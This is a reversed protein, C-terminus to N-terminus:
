QRQFMFPYSIQVEGGKPAPFKMSKIVGSLCRSTKPDALTSSRERVDKVRGNTRVVWSFVVKGSLTPNETLRREYCAQMKGIYRDLTKSVDARSLSGGAVKGLAKLSSVKGRVKGSSARKALKGVDKGIPTSTSTKGRKGGGGIAMNVEDGKLSELAGSVDFGGDGGGPKQVADINSVVDKISSGSGPNPSTLMTLVNDAQERATENPRTRTSSRKELAKKVTEPLQVQQETPDDPAPPAVPKTPKPKEPIPKPAEPPTPKKLDTLKGEAFAEIQDPDPKVTLQVGAAQIAMVALMAVLHLAIALGLSAGYLTLNKRTFTSQASPPAMPPRFTRIRWAVEGMQLECQDGPKLEVKQSFDDIPQRRNGDHRREIWGTLAHSDALKKHVKVTGSKTGLTAKFPAERDRYRRRLGRLTYIAFARDNAHRVIEMVASSGYEDRTAGLQSSPKLIEELAFPAEFDADEDEDRPADWDLNAFYPDDPPALPNASPESSRRARGPDVAAPAPADPAAAEPAAAEPPPLDPRHAIPKTVEAGHTDRLPDPDEARNRALLDAPVSREVTAELVGKPPPEGLDLADADLDDNHFAIDLAPASQPAPSPAQQLANVLTSARKFDAAQEARIVEGWTAARMPFREGLLAGLRMSQDSVGPLQLPPELARLFGSYDPYRQAPDKAVARAVIPDLRSPVESEVNSPKPVPDDCIARMVEFPGSRAFLQRGTLLEWLIVGLAFIDSRTDPQAGKFLEPACYELNSTPLGGRAKGLAQHITATGHGVVRTKGDYGLVLSKPSLHAHILPAGSAASHGRVFDLAAAAEAIVRATLALPAPKGASAYSNWIFDLTEGAAFNLVIYYGDDRRFLDRAGVVARHELTAARQIEQYAARLLDQQQSVARPIREITVLRRSGDAHIACALWSELESHSALSTLPVYRVKSSQSM